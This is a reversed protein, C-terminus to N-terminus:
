TYIRIFLNNCSSLCYRLVLTLKMLEAADPKMNSKFPSKEEEHSVEAGFSMM